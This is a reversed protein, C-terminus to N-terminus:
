KGGQKVAQHAIADELFKIVVKIADITGNIAAQAQETDLVEKSITALENAADALKKAAQFAKNLQVADVAGTAQKFNDALGRLAPLIEEELDKQGDGDLDLNKLWKEATDIFDDVIKNQAVKFINLKGLINAM